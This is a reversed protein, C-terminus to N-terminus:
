PFSVLVAFFAVVHTSRVFSTDNNLPVIYSFPNSQLFSFWFPTNLFHFPQSRQCLDVAESSYNQPIMLFGSPLSSLTYCCVHVYDYLSRDCYGSDESDEAPVLGEKVANVTGTVDFSLSTLTVQCTSSATSVSAASWSAGHVAVFRTSPPTM